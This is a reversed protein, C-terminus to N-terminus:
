ILNLLKSFDKIIIRKKDQSLIKQHKLKMIERNVTERTVGLMAGLDKQTLELDLLIGADQRKGFRNILDILTKVLRKSFNTYCLDTLFEDTKRLRTCLASMISELAETRKFLYSYFVDRHLVFLQTNTLAIADASRPAKDLISLEGFFDGDTFITIILEEGEETPISIKIKGSNIIYLADGIDDKYFLVEDKKLYKLSMRSCIEELLEISMNEFLPIKKLDQAKM